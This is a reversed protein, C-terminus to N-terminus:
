RRESEPRMGPAGRDADREVRGPAVLRVSIPEPLEPSFFLLQDQRAIRRTQCFYLMNMKFGVVTGKLLSQSGDGEKLKAKFSNYDEQYLQKPLSGQRFLRLYDFRLLDRGIDFDLDLRTRFYELLLSYYEKQSLSGKGRYLKKLLCGIDSFINWAGETNDLLYSMTARFHDSNYLRDVLGAVEKIQVLDAYSMADHQLIEYPPWPRYVLGFKEKAKFLPTGKLVKLFGLQLAQPRLAMTQNFSTRIADLSDGPLGAILDVHVHVRGARIIRDLNKFLRDQNEWRNINILVDRDCSQIGAEIQFRGTPCQCLLDVLRDSLSAAAVELHFSTPADSGALHSLVEFAWDERANFTRDVLKVLGVEARQFRALEAVVQQAPKHRLDRPGGSLCYSCGYPCGRQGEYYVLRHSLSELDTEDYPFVMDSPSALEAEGTKVIEGSETRFVIGPLAQFSSRPIDKSADWSSLAQFINPWTTEVEGTIVLDCPSVKLFEDASFAVEPGGACILAKPAVLRLAAIIKSIFELNWIYCSFVYADAPKTLIRALVGNISDNVTAELFSAEVSDPVLAKLYRLALNSHVYQSDVAILRIHM